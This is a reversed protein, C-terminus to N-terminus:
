PSKTQEMVTSMVATAQDSKRISRYIGIVILRGAIGPILSATSKVEITGEVKSSISFLVTSSTRARNFVGRTIVSQVSTRTRGNNEKLYVTFPVSNNNPNLIVFGTTVRVPSTPVTSTTDLQIRTLFTDSDTQALEPVDPVLPIVTKYKSTMSDRIILVGVLASDPDEVRVYATPTTFPFVPTGPMGTLRITMVQNPTLTLFPNTVDNPYQSLYAGLSDFASLGLMAATNSTNVVILEAVAGSEFYPAYLTRQKSAEAVAADAQCSFNDPSSLACGSPFSSGNLMALSQKGAGLSVGFLETGVLTHGDAAQAVVYGGDLETPIVIDKTTIPAADSAVVLRGCPNVAVSVPSSTSTGDPYKLDSVVGAANFATLRVAITGLSSDCMADSQFLHIETFSTAGAEVVPFILTSLPTKVAEASAWYGPTDYSDAVEYFGTMAGAATEAVVAGSKTAGPFLTSAEVTTQRGGLIPALTETHLVNGTSDYSTLTVTIPNTPDPNAISLRTKRGAPDGVVVPFFLRGGGNAAADFVTGEPGLAAVDMGAQQLKPLNGTAVFGAYTGFPQVAPVIAFNGTIFGSFVKITIRTDLFMLNGDKGRNLQFLRLPFGIPLKGRFQTLLPLKLTMGPGFAVAGCPQVEFRAVHTLRTFGRVEPFTDKSTLPVDCSRDVRDLLAASDLPLVKVKANVKLTRRPITASTGTRQDSVTGGSQASVSQGPTTQQGTVFTATVDAALFAQAIFLCVDLPAIASCGSVGNLGSVVKIQVETGAPLLGSPTFTAIPGAAGVFGLV